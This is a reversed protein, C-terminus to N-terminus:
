VWVLDTCVWRGREGELRLALAVTRAGRRVTACVEAVGDPRQQVHLSRVDARTPRSGTARPLGAMRKELELFLAPTTDRQLQPLPRLGARIELVRQVLAHAFARPAPLEASPTRPPPEDLLGLLTLQVDPVVRLRTPSVPPTAPGAGTGPVLRLAPVRPLEDDYPPESCPAPLLRLASPLAILPESATVTM